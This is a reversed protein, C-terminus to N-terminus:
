PATAAQVARRFQLPSRINSFPEKTGGTGTVTITGCSFIQGLISQTVAIAEVKTLMLELTRRQLFGVKVIVRKNTVAFESAMYVLWRALFLILTIVLLVEGTRQYQFWFAVGSIILFVFPWGFVIWHLRTRFLVSEGPILSRDVYSM